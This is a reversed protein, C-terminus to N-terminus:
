SNIKFLIVPELTKGLSRLILSNWIESSESADRVGKKPAPSLSVKWSGAKIESQGYQGLLSEGGGFGSNWSRGMYVYKVRFSM